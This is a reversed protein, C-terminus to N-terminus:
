LLAGEDDCCYGFCAAITQRIPLSQEGSIKNLQVYKSSWRKAGSGKRVQPLLYYSLPLVLAAQARTLHAFQTNWVSLQRTFVNEIDVRGGADEM